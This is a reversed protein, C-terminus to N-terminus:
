ALTSFRFHLTNKTGTSNMALVNANITRLIM